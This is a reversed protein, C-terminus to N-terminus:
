DGEMLEDIFEQETRIKRYNSDPANTEDDFWNNCKSCYYLGENVIEVSENGCSPCKLNSIATSM